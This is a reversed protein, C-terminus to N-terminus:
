DHSSTLDYNYIIQYAKPKIQMPKSFPNDLAFVIFLMFVFYGSFLSILLMHAISNETGFFFLFATLIIGGIILALWPLTGISEWSSYIRELRANSQKFLFELSKAYWLKEQETQPHFEVFAQWIDELKGLTVPSEKREKMQPWEDDIISKVYALVKKQMDKKIKEPFANASQFVSESLYAEKEVQSIIHTINQQSNIITFGLFVSYLVGFVGIVFGALDHHKKLISFHIYRRVIFFIINAIVITGLVIGICIFIWNLGGFVHM